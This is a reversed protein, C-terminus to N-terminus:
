MELSMMMGQVRRMGWRRLLKKWNVTCFILAKEEHANFWLTRNQSFEILQDSISELYEKKAKQTARQL